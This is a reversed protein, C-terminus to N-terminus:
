GEEAESEPEEVETSIEDSDEESVFVPAATVKHDGNIEVWPKMRTGEPIPYVATFPGDVQKIVVIDAKIKM